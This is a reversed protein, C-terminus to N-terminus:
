SKKMNRGSKNRKQCFIQIKAAYEDYFTMKLHFSLVASAM